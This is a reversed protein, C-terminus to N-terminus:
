SRRRTMCLHSLWKIDDCDWSSIGQSIAEFVEWWDHLARFSVSHWMTWSCHAAKCSSLPPSSAEWQAMFCKQFKISYFYALVEGFINVKTIDHLLADKYMNFVWVTIDLRDAACQGPLLAKTIEPWVPNTTFTIFLDFGGYFRAIAMTDQFLQNMYRPSGVFSSPLVVKRGVNHLDLNDDLQAIADELGSYLSACLKPQNNEIWCLRNQDTSVWMDCVYQQFLCGGLHILPFERDHIHLWYSYFQVQSMRTHPNLANSTPKDICPHLLLTTMWGSTGHPFLLVYHPPAYSPHLNSLYKLAGDHQYLIVNCPQQVVTEDGVIIAAVEDVSPLNYQWLDTSPDAQLHISVHEAPNQQLVQFARLFTNAYNNVCNLTDQLLQLTHESLTENNKIRFNLTDEQDYFYLQAYCVTEGTAPSLAGIRHYITYGAKYTWLGRGRLNVDQEHAAYSTFALATNYRHIYHCFDKVEASQLTFLIKLAHPPDPLWELQVKGHHCCRGFTPLHSGNKMHEALWHKACCFM